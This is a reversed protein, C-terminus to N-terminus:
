FCFSILIPTWPFICIDGCGVKVINRHQLEQLMVIEKLVKYKSLTFCEEISRNVAPNSVCRKIDESNTPVSKVAVEVGKYIGKEVLKTYGHGVYGVVQIDKMDKCGLLRHEKLVLTMESQERSAKSGGKRKRARLRPFSQLVRGEEKGGFNALDRFMYIRKPPMNSERGHDDDLWPFGNFNNNIESDRLLEDRDIQRMTSYMVVVCCFLSLSSLSVVAQLLVRRRQRMVTVRFRALPLFVEKENSYYM